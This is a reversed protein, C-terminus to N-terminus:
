GQYQDKLKLGEVLTDRVMDLRATCSAPAAVGGDADTAVATCEQKCYSPDTAAGTCIPKAKEFACASDEDASLPSAYGLGCESEGKHQIVEVLVDARARQEIQAQTPPADGAAGPLQFMRGESLNASHPISVHDCRADYACAADLADGGDGM